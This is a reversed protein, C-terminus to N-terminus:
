RDIFYHEPLAFELPNKMVNVLLEGVANFHARMDSHDDVGDLPVDSIHTIAGLQGQGLPHSLVNVVMWGVGPVGDQRLFSHIIQQEGQVLDAPSFNLLRIEGGYEFLM